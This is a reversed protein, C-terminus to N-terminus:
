KTVVLDSPQIPKDRYRDNLRLKSFSEQVEDLYGEGVKETDFGLSKGTTPHMIEKGKRYIIAGTRQRVNQPTGLDTLVRDDDRSIVIGEVVPFNRAIKAALVRMLDKVSAASTDETYVDLVSMVESTETDVIRSTVEFSHDTERATNVIIAEAAAIKGFQAAKENDDALALTMKREAMLQKLKQREVVLFRHQEAFAGTLNDSALHVTASPAGDYDFPLVLVSMRSGNQLVSPIKRAVQMRTSAKNGAADYVEVSISNDGSELKVISSFYVRKGKRISVDRGNVVVREVQCNDTAVGDLPYADVFVFPIGGPERLNLIPKERDWFGCSGAEKAPAPRPALAAQAGPTYPRTGEGGLIKGPALQKDSDTSLALSLKQEDTIAKLKDREVFTGGQDPGPEPQPEAGGQQALAAKRAAEARFRALEERDAKERAQREREAREAALRSREAEERALRKAEDQEAALQVRREAEAKQRALQEEQAKITALRSLEEAERTQRELDEKAAALRSREAEERALRDQEAKEAALREQLESGAKQRALEEEEAKVRALRSLEEAERSQRELEAKEAALRSREAEERALREGEAMEAAARELVARETAERLLQAALAAEGAARVREAAARALSEREEAARSERLQRDNASRAEGEEAEREAAILASLEIEAVTENGITDQARVLLTDAGRREALLDIQYSHAGNAQVERGAIVISRIGLEDSVEGIVRAYNKQERREFNISSIALVPGERKITVPLASIVKNGALDEAEIRIEKPDDDLSVEQNVEVKSRAEEVPYNVGNLTIRSVFADSAVTARVSVSRGRTALSGKPRTFSVTIPSVVAKGAGTLRAKRAANLYFVAKASESSRVSLELERIAREVEGMKLYVIGLERHPFYDIFHMGYTRAMRQDKERMDIAKELDSLAENLKKADSYEMGRQYYHWWKGRFEDCSASQATLLFALMFGTCLLIIRAM